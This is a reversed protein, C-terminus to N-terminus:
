CVISLRIYQGEPWSSDFRQFGRIKCWSFYGQKTSLILRKPTPWGPVTYHKSYSWEIKLDEYGAVNPVGAIECLYAICGSWDQRDFADSLLANAIKM